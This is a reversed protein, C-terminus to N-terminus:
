CNGVILISKAYNQNSTLSISSQNLELQSKELKVSDQSCFVRRNSYQWFYHDGHLVKFPSKMLLLSHGSLQIASATKAGCLHLVSCIGEGPKPCPPPIEMAPSHHAQVGQEPQLSGCQSWLLWLPALHSSFKDERGELLEALPHNSIYEAFNKM